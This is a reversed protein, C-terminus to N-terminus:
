DFIDRTSQRHRFRRRSTGGKSQAKRRNTTQKIRKRAPEGPPAPLSNVVQHILHQGAQQARQKAAAKFDQGSLVDSAIQMGTRAGTKLLSKGASKLLPVASRLVGGLINGLGQGRM